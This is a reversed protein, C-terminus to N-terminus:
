PKTALWFTIAAFILPLFVGFKLQWQELNDPNASVVLYGAVGLLAAGVLNGILVTKNNVFWPCAITSIFLLVFIYEELNPPISTKEFPVGMGILEQKASEYGDIRKPILLWRYRNPSRLYVGGGWRPEEIRLIEERELRRVTGSFSRVEVETPSVIVRQNELAQQLPNSASKRRHINRVLPTAFFIIAALWWVHFAPWYVEGIVALALCLSAIVSFRFRIKENRKLIRQITEPSYAYVSM